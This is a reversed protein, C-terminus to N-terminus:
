KKYIWEKYYFIGEKVSDEGLYGILINNTLNKPLFKFAFKIRREKNMIKSATLMLHHLDPLTEKGLDTESIKEYGTKEFYRSWKKDSEIMACAGCKSIIEIVTKEYDLYEDFEKVTTYDYLVLIGGKKLIRNIEAFVKEKDSCHVLTEIGFVVDASESEVESMNSYDAKILRLNDFGKKPVKPPLLDYGTFNADPRKKALYFINAGQGSGLEVVTGGNPIFKEVVNPQYYTDSDEFKGSKSVRFHMFGNDSHFKRYALKNIRYYKRIKKVSNKDGDILGDIKVYKKIRELKRKLESEM